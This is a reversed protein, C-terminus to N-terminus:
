SRRMGHLLDIVHVVYVTMATFIHVTHVLYEIHMYFTPWLVTYVIYNLTLHIRSSM